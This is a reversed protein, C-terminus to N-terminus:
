QSVEVVDLQGGGFSGSGSRFGVPDFHAGTVVEDPVVKVHAGWTVGPVWGVTAFVGGTDSAVAVSVRVYAVWFCSNAIAVVVRHAIVALQTLITVVEATVLVLSAGRLFAFGAGTRLAGGASDEVVTVDYAGAAWGASCSRLTLEAHVSPETFRATTTGALSAHAVTVNVVVSDAVAVSGGPLTELADVVGTSKFAVLAQLSVPAFRNGVVGFFSALQAFAVHQSTDVDGHTVWGVSLALAFGINFSATAVLAAATKPVQFASVSAFGAVAM